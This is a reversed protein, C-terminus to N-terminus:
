TAISAPKGRHPDLTSVLQARQRDVGAPRTYSHGESAESSYPSSSITLQILDILVSKVEALDALEYEITEPPQWAGGDVREVRAGSVIVDVAVGGETVTVSDPDPLRALLIPQYRRTPRVVQMVSGTLPTGLRTALREEERAILTVLDASELGPAMLARVEDETVVSM